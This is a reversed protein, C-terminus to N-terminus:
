DNVGGRRFLVAAFIAVAVPFSLLVPLALVLSAESKPDPRLTCAVAGAATWLLGMSELAIADFRLKAFRGGFILRAWRPPREWVGPGAYYNSERRGVTWRVYAYWMLLGFFFAGPGFSQWEM